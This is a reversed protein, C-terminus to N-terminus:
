PLGTASSKTKELSRLPSQSSAPWSSSISLSTAHARSAFPGPRQWVAPRQDVLVVDAFWKFIIAALFAVGLLFVAKGWSTGNLWSGFGLMTIFLAVSAWIPWRSQAPVYYADPNQHESAHAQAM